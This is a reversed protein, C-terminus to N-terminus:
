RGAKAHYEDVIEQPIRGRDSIEKGEKKAWARIARNQERDAAAGGRGRAARGGVVVGGRGIKTGAAVYPAFVQRLKDANKESLDIEYQVGDLAFKVTEDADGGDLDDVLKHIIQKAM